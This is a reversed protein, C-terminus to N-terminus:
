VATRGSGSIVAVDPSRFPVSFSIETAHATYAPIAKAVHSEMSVIRLDSRYRHELAYM